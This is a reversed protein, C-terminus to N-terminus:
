EPLERIENRRPDAKLAEVVPLVTGERDKYWAAQEFRKDPHNAPLINQSVKCALFTCFPICLFTM